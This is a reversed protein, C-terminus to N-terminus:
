NNLTRVRGGPASNTDSYFVGHEQDYLVVQSPAASTGPTATDIIAMAIRPAKLLPPVAITWVATNPSGVVGTIDCNGYTANVVGTTAHFMEGTEANYFFVWPDNTYGTGQTSTTNPMVITRAPYTNSAAADIEPALLSMTLVLLAIAMVGVILNLVDKKM